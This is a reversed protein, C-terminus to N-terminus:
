IKKLGSYFMDRGSWNWYTVDQEVFLWKVIKLIVEISHGTKFKISNMESDEIDICNYLKEILAKAKKYEKANEQKKIKLDFYITSHSPRSTKTIRGSNGENEFVIDEAHVEFDMGKNLIAPRKLYIDIGDSTKDVYYYYVSTLDGNGKGPEEKLFELILADKITKRDKGTIKLTIETEPM